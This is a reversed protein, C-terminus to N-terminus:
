IDYYVVACGDAGAVGAQGSTPYTTWIFRTTTQTTTEIHAGVLIDNPDGTPSYECLENWVYESVEWPEGDDPYCIHTTKTTTQTYGSGAKGGAGGKGGDGNGTPDAVGTRGYAEGSQVDTYSPTYVTGDASSYSGFTTETPTSGYAAGQGISVAFSQGANVHIVESYVKGGLGDAGKAGNVNLSGAQGTAGGNGGGVLIIKLESVGAPTTWTGSETIVESTSYNGGGAAQLLQSTCGKLVGDTFIFDQYFLRGTTASSKDLQVTPVDGIESSPDGRGITTLLNGGYIALIDRAAATAATQDHIFPNTIEVTTPSSPSTGQITVVSQDPLTFRIFAVDKNASMTPYREVNDLTIANGQSWFPEVCLKGTAADARPWTGTAQCCWLLIQGCTKDVLSAADLVTLSLSEYNPDVHYFTSFNVGLQSVIDAIWGGLTTPLSAPVNYQRDVLLGIIDVMSWTMVLANTSTKWGNQFQYFTGVPVYEAGDVGISIKIGQREEISQMLGTKARPEFEKTSNDIDFSATGYPLSVCSFDAQQRVTFASFDDGSWEEHLGAMVEPCRARRDGMSWKSISIYIADPNYVTFGKIACVKDTNGTVSKTFYATGGQRVEVTFDEAIGDYDAQPWWITLSQLIDVGSIAITFYATINRSSANSRVSSEWAIQQTMDAHAIDFTGDLVWRNTELTAYPQLETVGDFLQSTNAYATMTSGTVSGYQIDPDVIDMVARLKMRRSDATILEKYTPSTNLM